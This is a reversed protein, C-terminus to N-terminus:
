SKSYEFHSLSQCFLLSACARSTRCSASWRVVVLAREHRAASSSLFAREHRALLFVSVARKHRASLLASLAREHRAPSSAVLLAREHRAALLPFYYRVSTVYPLLLSVLSRRARVEACHQHSTVTAVACSRSVTFGLRARIYIRFKLRQISPFHRAKTVLMKSHINLVHPQSCM